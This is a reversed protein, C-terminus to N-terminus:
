GPPPHAEQWAAVTQRVTALVEGRSRGTERAIGDLTTTLHQEPEVGLAQFLEAPPVRYHRAVYPVTMWGEIASVDTQRPTPPPVTMRHFLRWAAQAGFVLAAVFALAVIAALIRRRKALLAM